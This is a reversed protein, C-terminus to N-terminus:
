NIISIFIRYKRKFCLGLLPTTFSQLHGSYSIYQFTVFNPPGILTFLMEDMKPVRPTTKANQLHHMGCVESHHPVVHSEFCFAMREECLCPQHQDRAQMQNGAVSPNPCKQNFLRLIYDGTDSHNKFVGHRMGIKNHKETQDRILSAILNECEIFVIQCHVRKLAFGLFNFKMPMPPSAGHCVQLLNTAVHFTLFLHSTAAVPITKSPTKSQLKRNFQHWWALDYPHGTQNEVSLLMHGAGLCGRKNSSSMVGAPKQCPPKWPHDHRSLKLWKCEFVESSTSQVIWSIWGHGSAMQSWSAEPCDHTVVFFDGHFPSSFVPTSPLKHAKFSASVEYKPTLCNAALYFLGHPAQQQHKHDKPCCWVYIVSAVSKPLSPNLNNKRVEIIKLEPQSEHRLEQPKGTPPHPCFTCAEAFKWGGQQSFQQSCSYPWHSSHAHAAPWCGTAIKSSAASAWDHFRVSHPPSAAFCHTTSKRSWPLINKKWGVFEQHDKMYEDFKYLTQRHKHFPLHVAPPYRAARHFDCLWSRFRRM